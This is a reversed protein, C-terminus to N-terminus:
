STEEIDIRILTHTAGEATGMAAEIAQLKTAYGDMSAVMGGTEENYLWFAYTGQAKGIEAYVRKSTNM